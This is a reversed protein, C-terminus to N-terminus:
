KERGELTKGNGAASPLVLPCPDFGAEFIADVTELEVDSLFDTALTSSIALGHNEIPAHRRNLPKHKHCSNDRLILNDDGIDDTPYLPLISNARDVISDSISLLHTDESEM